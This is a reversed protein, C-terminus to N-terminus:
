LLLQRFCSLFGFFNCMVRENVMDEKVDTMCMDIVCSDINCTDMNCIDEIWSSQIWSAWLRWRWSSWWWSQTAKLQTRQAIIWSMAKCIWGRWYWGLFAPPTDPDHLEPERRRFGRVKEQFEKWSGVVMFHLELVRRHACAVETEFNNALEIRNWPDILNKIASSKHCPPEM